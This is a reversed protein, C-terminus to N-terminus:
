FLFDREGEQNEASLTLETCACKRTLLGGCKYPFSERERERERERALSM